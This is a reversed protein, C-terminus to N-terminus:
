TWPYLFCWALKKAKTNVALAFSIFLRLIECCKQFIQAIGLDTNAGEKVSERVSVVECEGECECEGDGDGEGDGEVEVGSTTRRPADLWRVM